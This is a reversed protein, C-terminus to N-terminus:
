LVTADHGHQKAVCASISPEFSFPKPSCFGDSFVVRKISSCMRLRRSTIWLPSM